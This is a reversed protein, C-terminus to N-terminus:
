SAGRPFERVRLDAPWESWDGGKPDRLPLRTATMEMQRRGENTRFRGTPAFEGPKAGLQKAFCAVGAAKCQEITSRMWALDFPRAGPGSEGGVIIWDIGARRPCSCAFTEGSAMSAQAHSCPTPLLYPRFDVPGLAPEYSVFRVAAPVDLLHPLREDARQQDEATTGLWINPAWPTVHVDAEAGELDRLAQKWLRDAHEPRKTLLLWDLHPTDDILALLRARSEDLDPRDEFVDSMSACFVRARKGVKEAARNWREPERWHADSMMRREARPGWITPLRKGHGVRKAFTDAYCHECGPSVKACGWWPSFTHDTWSISSDKGMM